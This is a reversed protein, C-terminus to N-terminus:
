RRENLINFADEWLEFDFFPTMDFRDRGECGERRLYIRVRSFVGKRSLYLLENPLEGYLAVDSDYRKEIAEVVILNNDKVLIERRGVKGNNVTYGEFANNNIFVIYRLKPDSEPLKLQYTVKQNAVLAEICIKEFQLFKCFIFDFAKCISQICEKVDKRLVTASLVVTKQKSSSINCIRVQINLPINISEKVSKNYVFKKITDKIGKIPELRFEKSVNKLHDKFSDDQHTLIIIKNDAMIAAVIKSNADTYIQQDCNFLLLNLILQM